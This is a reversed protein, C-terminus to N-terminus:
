VEKGDDVATVALDFQNIGFEFDLLKNKETLKVYATTWAEFTSTTTQGGVAKKTIVFPDQSPDQIFKFGPTWVRDPDTAM